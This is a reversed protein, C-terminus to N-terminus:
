KQQEPVAANMGEEAFTNQEIPSMEEGNWGGSTLFRLAPTFPDGSPELQTIDHMESPVLGLSAMIVVIEMTTRRYLLRQSDDLLVWEEESFSVAVDQFAVCGQQLSSILGYSAGETASWGEGLHDNGGILSQLWLFGTERPKLLTNEVTQCLLHFSLFPRDARTLSVSFGKNRSSLECPSRSFIKGCMVLSTDNHEAWARPGPPWRHVSEACLKRKVRGVNGSLM